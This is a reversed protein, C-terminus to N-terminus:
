SRTRSSGDFYIFTAPIPEYAPARTVDSAREALTLGHKVFGQGRGAHLRTLM